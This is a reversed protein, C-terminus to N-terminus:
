GAQGRGRLLSTGRHQRGRGWGAWRILWARQSARSVGTWRQEKRLAAVALMRVM